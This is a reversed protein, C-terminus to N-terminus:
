GDRQAGRGAGLPELRGGEESSGGLAASSVEGLSWVWSLGGFHEPTVVETVWLLRQGMCRLLTLMGKM